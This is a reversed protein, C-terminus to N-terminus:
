GERQKKVVVGLLGILVLVATGAAGIYTIVWAERRAGQAAKIGADELMVLMKDVERYKSYTSLVGLTLPLLALVLFLYFPKRSRLVILLLMGSVVLILTLVLILLDLPSSHRLFEGLSEV